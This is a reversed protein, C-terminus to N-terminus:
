LKVSKIYAIVEEEEIGKFMEQAGDVKKEPVWKFEQLIEHIHKELEYPVKTEYDLRLETRPIYRYQMFWSRLIEMMRDASRPTYCMGIKHIVEKDDLTLQLMYLRGTTAKRKDAVAFM